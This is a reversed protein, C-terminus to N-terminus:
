AAAPALAAHSCCRLSLCLPLMSRRERSGLCVELLPVHFVDQLLLSAQGTKVLVNVGGGAQQPAPAEQQETSPQRLRWTGEPPGTPQDTPAAVFTCLKEDVTWAAAACLLCLM